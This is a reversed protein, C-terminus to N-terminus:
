FEAFRAQHIGFLALCAAISEGLRGIADTYALDNTHQIPRKSRNLAGADGGVPWAAIAAVFFVARYPENHDLRAICERRHEIRTGQRFHAAQRSLGLASLGAIIRERM